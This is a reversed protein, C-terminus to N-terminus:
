ARQERISLCRSKIGSLAEIAADLTAEMELCERDSIRGDHSAVALKHMVAATSPMADTDCKAGLPVSRRDFHHLLGELATPSVLLLNFLTHGSLKNDGNRANTITEASCYVREALQRDNLEQERQVRAIIDSIRAKWFTETIPLSNPLVQRAHETM